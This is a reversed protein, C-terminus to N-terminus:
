AALPRRRTVAEIPTPGPRIEAVPANRKANRRAEKDAYMASDAARLLAEPSVGDRPYLAIGVSVTPHLTRKAIAVPQQLDATLRQIIKAIDEDKEGGELVVVFEDGGFRAATEHDRTSGALRRGLVKLLKDGAEHGFTDNVHKFNDVDLFLLALSHGSRKARHIAIMLRDMCLARNPLATLNDHNALHALKEELEVRASIDNQIGLYHTIEGDHNRIPSIYLENWFPTGDKKFNKLVACTESQNSLAQRVSALGPQNNDRGQLFRCNIGLIEAMAYGTMREFAPNAYILPLDGSRADSITIGNAVSELVQGISRWDFGEFNSFEM